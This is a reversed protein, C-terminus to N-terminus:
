SSVAIFRLGLTEVTRMPSLMADWGESTPRTWAVAAEIRHVRGGVTSSAYTLTVRSKRALGLSTAQIRAGMPGFDLFRGTGQRGLEDRIELPDSRRARPHARPGVAEGSSLKLALKVADALESREDIAACRPISRLRHLSAPDTKQCSFLLGPSPLADRLRKAMDLKASDFTEIRSVITHFGDRRLAARVSDLSTFTAIEFTPCLALRDRLAAFGSDERSVIAIRLLNM